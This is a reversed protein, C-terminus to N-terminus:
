SCIQMFRLILIKKLDNFVLHESYSVCIFIDTSNVPKSGIYTISTYILKPM